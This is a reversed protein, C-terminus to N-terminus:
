KVLSVKMPYASKLAETGVTPYIIDGINWVVPVDTKLEFKFNSILEALVVKMELQALKFGICYRGGGWFTMLNTYVGPIKAEAVQAPLPELWREPRWERADPGWVDPNVNAAQAAVFVVTGQPVPISTIVKGDKGIFPRSLPLVADAQAERLRLPAPAYVRLTESCFADLYPLAMLEDYPIDGGENHAQAEVIEARLKNQAEPSKALCEFMRTLANATTDTAAFILTSFQAILEDEPIADEKSAGANAQLLLTMLDKPRGDRGHMSDEVALAEAEAKKEMYTSVAHEHVTDIVRVLEKVRRSPLMNVIPRRLAPPILPRTFHYLQIYNSLASVAPLYCAIIEAYSHHGEQILPDFCHGLAVQGILELSTRGMYQAVDVVPAGSEVLTKIAKNLRHAVEYLVPTITRINKSSFIPGLLKRQKRHAEGTSSLIAPGFTDIWVNLFWRTEEFLPVDHQIDKLVITNMAAPDYVCLMPQGFLGQLRSVPGYKTQLAHHFDWGQKDYLQLMNGTLWSPSPPGRINDFPSKRSSVWNYFKWLFLTFCGVIFYQLM